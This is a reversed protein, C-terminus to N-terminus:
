LLALNALRPLLTEGLFCCNSSSYPPPRLGCLNSTVTSVSSSSAGVVPVLRLNNGELLGNLPPAPIAAVVVVTGNFSDMSSSYPAPLAVGRLLPLGLFVFPVGIGLAAFFLRAGVGDFRLAFRAFVPRSTEEDTSGECGVGVGFLRPRGGFFWASGGLLVPDCKSSGESM